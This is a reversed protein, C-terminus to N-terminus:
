EDALAAPPPLTGPSFVACRLAHWHPAHDTRSVPLWTTHLGPGGHRLLMWDGTDILCDLPGTGTPLSWGGGAPQWVLPMPPPDAWPVLRRFWWWLAPTASLTAVLLMAASPARGTQGAHWGLWGLAVAVTVAALGQLGRHWRHDPRLTLSLAPAHHM